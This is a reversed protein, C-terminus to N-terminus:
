GSQKLKIAFCFNAGMGEEGSVWIKGSHADIINKCISLGLGVSKHRGESNSLRKFPEFISSYSNAPVGPGEDQVCFRCYGNDIVASCTISSGEPSYKISNNLLNNVVQRIKISDVHAIMEEHDAIFRIKIDHQNALIRTQSIAQDFIQKLDTDALSLVVKGSQMASLDLISDVLKQMYIATSHIIGAIEHSDQDLKSDTKMVESFSRIIGIPNRLDHAAMGVFRNRIEILKQLEANAKALDRQSRVFENNLRTLEDFYFRDESKPKILEEETMPENQRIHFDVGPQLQKEDLTKLIIEEITDLEDASIILFRHKM